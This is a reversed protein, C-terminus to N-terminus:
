KNYADFLEKREKDSTCKVFAEQYEKDNTPVTMPTGDENKNGASGKAKQKEFDFIKEAEETVFSNFKIPNGHADEKRKGDVNLLLHNRDEQLLVSTTTVRELFTQVQNEAKVKDKNLVPNLSLFVERADRMLTETVKEKEKTQKFSDFEFKLDEFKKVPITEKELKLYDPHKKVDVPEVKSKKAVLEKILDVGMLDTDIEFTTKIEKEFKGLEEAKAKKAGADFVKTLESKHAENISAIREADKAKLIDFADDKLKDDSYLEAFEDDKLSITTKLLKKLLTKEDM